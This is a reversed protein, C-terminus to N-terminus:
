ITTTDKLMHAFKYPLLSLLTTWYNKSNLNFLRQLNHPFKDKTGSSLLVNYGLTFCIMNVILSVVVEKMINM